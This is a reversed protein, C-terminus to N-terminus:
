RVRTTDVLLDRIPCLFLVPRIAVEQRNQQGLLYRMTLLGAQLATRAASVKGEELRNVFKIETELSCQPLGEQTGVQSWVKYGLPPRQNQISLGASPLGMEGDGDAIAGDLITELRKKGRGRFEDLIQRVGALSPFQLWRQQGIRM